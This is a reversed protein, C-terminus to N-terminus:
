YINIYISMGPIWISKFADIISQSEMEFYKMVIVIKNLKIGNYLLNNRFKVLYMEFDVYSTKNNIPENKKDICIFLGFPKYMKTSQTIVMCWKTSFQEVFLPEGQVMTKFAKPYNIGISIHRKGRNWFTFEDIELINTIQKHTIKGANEIVNLWKKLKISNNENIWKILEKEAM